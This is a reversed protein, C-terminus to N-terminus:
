VAVVANRLVGVGDIDIEVVDGEILHTDAPPSAASGTCLVAGDPVDAHKTTWRVLDDITYSLRETSGEGTVVVTGGRIVRYGIRLRTPDLGGAPVIAPGLACCRAFIKSADMYFPNERPLDRSSVDNAATYGIVRGDAIIVALEAEPIMQQADGRSGIPQGPGVCRHPTAKFFIVPRVLPDTPVHQASVYARPIAYTFAAGWVEPPVHPIDLDVDAVPRRSRGALLLSALDGISMGRRAAERWLSMYDSPADDPFTAVSGADEAALRSGNSTRIRLFRMSLETEEQASDM